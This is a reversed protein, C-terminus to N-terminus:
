KSPQNMELLSSLDTFNRFAWSGFSWFKLKMSILEKSVAFKKQFVLLCSFLHRQFHVTNGTVHNELCIQFTWDFYLVKSFVLFGINCSSDEGPEFSNKREKEKKSLMYFLFLFQLVAETRWIDFRNIKMEAGAPPCLSFNAPVRRWGRKTVLAGACHYVWPLIHETSKKKKKM